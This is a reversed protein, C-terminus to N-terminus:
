VHSKLHFYERKQDLKTTKKKQKLMEAPETWESGMVNVGAGGGTFSGNCTPEFISAVQFNVLWSLDGPKNGNQHHPETASSIKNLPQLSSQAPPPLHQLPRRQQVNAAGSAAHVHLHQHHPTLPHLQPPQQNHREAPRLWMSMQPQPQTPPSPQMEEFVLPTFVDSPEYRAHVASATPPSVWATSPWGSCDTAASDECFGVGGGGGGGDLLKNERELKYVHPPRACSLYRKSLVLSSLGDSLPSPQTFAISSSLSSMPRDTSRQVLRPDTSFHRARPYFEVASSLLLLVIYRIIHKHTHSFTTEVRQSPPASMPPRNCPVHLKERRGVSSDTAGPRLKYIIYM